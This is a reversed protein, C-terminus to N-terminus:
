MRFMILSVLARLPLPRRVVTAPRLAGHLVVHPPLLRHPLHRGGVPLDAAPQLEHEQEQM